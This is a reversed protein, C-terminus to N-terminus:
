REVLLRHAHFEEAVGQLGQALEIRFGLAGGGLDFFCHDKRDPLKDHAIRPALPKFAASAVLGQDVLHPFAREGRTRFKKRRKEVVHFAQELIQRLVAKNGHDLGIIDRSLDLCLALLDFCSSFLFSFFSSGQRFCRFEIKVLFANIGLKGTKGGKLDAQEPGPGAPM